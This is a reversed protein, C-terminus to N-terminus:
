RSSLPDLAGPVPREVPACMCRLGVDDTPCRDWRSLRAPDDKRSVHVWQSLLDSWSM